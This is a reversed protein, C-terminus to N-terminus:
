DHWSWLGPAGNRPWSSPLPSSSTPGTTAPRQRRGSHVPPAGRTSSPPIPPSCALPPSTSAAHQAAGSRTEGRLPQRPRHPRHRAHRTQATQPPASHRAAGRRRTPRPPPPAEPQPSNDTQGRRLSARNPSEIGPSETRPPEGKRARSRRRPHSSGHARPRNTGQAAGGSGRHATPRPPRPEHRRTATPTPNVRPTHRPGSPPHGDQQRVRSGGEERSPAPAPFQRTHDHPQPVRATTRKPHQAPQCDHDRGWWPM